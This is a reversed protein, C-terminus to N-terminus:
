PSQVNVCFKSMSTPPRPTQYLMGQVVAYSKRPDTKFNCKDLGKQGM